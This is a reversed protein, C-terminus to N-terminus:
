HMTPPAGAIRLRDLTFGLLLASKVPERGIFELLTEDPVVVQIILRIEPTIAAELEAETIEGNGGQRRATRVPM